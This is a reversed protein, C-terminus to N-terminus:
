ASVTVPDPGALTVDIDTSPDFTANGDSRYIKYTVTIPTASTTSIGFNLLRPNTCTKFGLVGPDGVGLYINSTNCQPNTNSNLSGSNTSWIDGKIILGGSCPVNNITVGTITFNFASGGTGGTRVLTPNTAIINVGSTFPYTSFFSPTSPDNNIVISGYTAALQAATPQGCGGGVYCIAPNPYSNGPWLHIVITKNGNNNQMTFSLDFKLTCSGGGNPIRVANVITPNSVTCQSNLRNISIITLLLTLIPLITKM